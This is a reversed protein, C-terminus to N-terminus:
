VLMSLTAPKLASIPQGAAPLGAPVTTPPEPVDPPASFEAGSPSLGADTAPPPSSPASNEAPQGTGQALPEAGGPPLKVAAPLRVGARGTEIFCCAISERHEKIFAESLPLGMVKALTAATAVYRRCIEHVTTPEPSASPKWSKAM